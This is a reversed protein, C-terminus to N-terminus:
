PGGEEAGAWGVAHLWGLEREGREQWQYHAGAGEQGWLDAV